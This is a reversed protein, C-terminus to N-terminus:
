SLSAIVSLFPFCSAFCLLSVRTPLPMREYYVCVCVSVIMVDRAHFTFSLHSSSPVGSFEGWKGSNNINKARTPTHTHALSTASLHRWLIAFSLRLFFILVNGMCDFLIVKCVGRESKREMFPTIVDCVM